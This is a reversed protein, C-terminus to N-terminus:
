NLCPVFTQLWGEAEIQNTFFRTPVVPKNTKLYFNAVLKHALSSIIFAEAISFRAGDGKSVHNRTDKDVSTYKGPIKLILNTEWM